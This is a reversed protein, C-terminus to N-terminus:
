CFQWVVLQVSKDVGVLEVSKSAQGCWLCWLSCRSPWVAPKVSNIIHVLNMKVVCELDEAIINLLVANESHDM